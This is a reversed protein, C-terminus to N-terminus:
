LWCSHAVFLLLMWNPASFKAICARLAADRVQRAAEGREAEAEAAAAAHEETSAASEAAAEAAWKKRKSALSAASATQLTAATGHLVVQTLHRILARVAARPANSTHADFLQEVVGGAGCRLLQGRLLALAVQDLDRVLASKLGAAWKKSISSTPYDAHVSLSLAALAAHESASFDACPALANHKTSKGTSARTSASM